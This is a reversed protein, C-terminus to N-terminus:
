IENLAKTISDSMAKEIESIPIVDINNAKYKFVIEIMAASFNMSSFARLIATKKM